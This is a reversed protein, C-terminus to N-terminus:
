KKERMSEAIPIGLAHFKKLVANEAEAYELKMELEKIRLKDDTKEQKTRTDKAKLKPNSDNKSMNPPRGKKKSQLGIIGDKEYDLKWRAILSHNYVGHEIALDQYSIDTTLYQTVLRLKFDTSYKRKKRSRKLADIGRSDYTSIWRSLMGVNIKYKRSLGRMSDKGEKYENILKLKKELSYKAM